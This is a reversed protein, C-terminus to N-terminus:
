TFFATPDGASKYLRFPAQDCHYQLLGLMTRRDAEKRSHFVKIINKTARKNGKDHYYLSLVHSIQAM